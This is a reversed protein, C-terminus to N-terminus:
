FDCLVQKFYTDHGSWKNIIQMNEISIFLVICMEFLFCDSAGLLM